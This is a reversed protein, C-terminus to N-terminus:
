VSRSLCEDKTLSACAALTLCLALAALTFLPKM